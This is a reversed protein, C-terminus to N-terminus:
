PQLAGAAPAEELVAESDELWAEDMIESEAAEEAAGEFEEDAEDAAAEEALAAEEAEM